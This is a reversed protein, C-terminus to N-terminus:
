SLLIDNPVVKLEIRSKHIESSVFSVTSLNLNYRKVDAAKVFFCDEENKKSGYHEPTSGSKLTAFTKVEEYGFKDFVKKLLSRNYFFRPEFRSYKEIESAYTTIIKNTM